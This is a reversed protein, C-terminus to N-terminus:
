QSKFVDSPELDEFLNIEGDGNINKESIMSNLSSLDAAHRAMDTALILGITRKRFIKFEERSMNVAFNSQDQQLIRFLEAVHFSEQVSVDNSDIARNTIANVHYSNTFGDHGLDHCAASIILSMCDLLNLKLTKQLGCSKLMYFAAQMVDAGHIDNHYQVDQRYTSQVTQLFKILRDEEMLEYAEIRQLADM